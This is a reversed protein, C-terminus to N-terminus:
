VDDHDDRGGEPSHPHDLLTLALHVRREKFRRAARLAAQVLHLGRYALVRERLVPDLPDLTRTSDTEPGDEYATLFASASTAGDLVRRGVAHNPSSQAPRSVFLDHYALYRGLDSAPEAMRLTDLDLLGIAGPLRVLQSPTFDGHSLVAPGTPTRALVDAAHDLHPTLLDALDPWVAGALTLEAGVRAVEEAPFVWPLGAAPTRDHLARLARAAEAPSVEGVAADVAGLSELLVVHREEDVGLLRPLRVPPGSVPQLRPEGVATLAIAAARAEPANPYVKAFLQRLPTDGADSGAADYRLVCAGTRPHHVVTVCWRTEAPGAHAPQAVAGAIVRAATAPDLLTALTPLAPDDPFATTSIDGAQARVLLTVGGDPARQGDLEASVRVSLDDGGRYLATHTRTRLLKRGPAHEAVWRQAVATGFPPDLAQEAVAVRERLRLEPGSM